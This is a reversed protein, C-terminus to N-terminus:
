LSKRAILWAILCLTFVAVLVAGLQMLSSPEITVSVATKIGGSEDFLNAVKGLLSKNEQAEM